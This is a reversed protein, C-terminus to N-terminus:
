KYINGFIEALGNVKQNVQQDAQRMIQSAKSINQQNTQLMQISAQLQPVVLTLVEQAFADAGRGRWVTGGQVLQAMKNAPNLAQNDMINQQNAVGRIVNEVIQFAVRLLAKMIM